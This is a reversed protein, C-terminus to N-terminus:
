RKKKKRPRPRHGPRTGLWDPYSLWGTTAYIRNPNTPIDEPLDEHGPLAGKRYLNWEVVGDLKQKRVLARAKRFSRFRKEPKKAPANARPEPQLGAAKRATKISGFKKLMSQYLRLDKDKGRQLESVSLSLGAKRRRQFEEIVAERTPYGGFLPPIGAEKIANRWSGYLRRACFVLSHDAYRGKLFTAVRIKLGAQQYLRIQATVAERTQYNGNPPSRTGPVKIGAADLAAKWNGFFYLANRYLMLDRKPGSRLGSTLLPHRLTKRRQIELLVEGKEYYQCESRCLRNYDFGLTEVAAQWSGFYKRARKLLNPDRNEGTRAAFASMPAELYYRQRLGDLVAQRNEYDRKPWTAKRGTQRTASSANHTLVCIGKESITIGAAELAEKRSWINNVYVHFRSFQKVVSHNLPMGPRYLQRIRAVIYEQESTLHMESLM